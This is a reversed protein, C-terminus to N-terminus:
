SLFSATNNRDGLEEEILFDLTDKYNSDKKSQDYNRYITHFIEKERSTLTSADGTTTWSHGTHLNFYIRKVGVDRFVEVVSWEDVRYSGSTHEVKLFKIM